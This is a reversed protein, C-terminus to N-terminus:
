LDLGAFNLLFISLVLVLFIVYVRFNELIQVKFQIGHTYDKHFTKHAKEDEKDGPAYKIGCTSCTHLLFDSQGLELHFQAYSRKKNKIVTKGSITSEPKSFCNDSNPKKLLQSSPEEDSRFFM